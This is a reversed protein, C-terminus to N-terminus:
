KNLEIYKKLYTRIQRSIGLEILKADTLNTTEVSMTRLRTYVFLAIDRKYAETQAGKQILKFPLIQVIEGDTSPVSVTRTPKWVTGDMTIRVLSYAISESLNEHGLNTKIFSNFTQQGNFLEFAYASFIKRLLHTTSHGDYDFGKSAMKYLQNTDAYYLEKISARNHYFWDEPAEDDLETIKQYISARMREILSVLSTASIFPLIHNVIVTQDISQDQFHKLAEREQETANKWQEQFNHKQKGEKKALGTQAIKDDVALFSSVAAAEIFRCGTCLQTLLIIAEVHVEAVSLLYEAMQWIESEKIPIVQSTASELRLKTSLRRADNTAKSMVFGAQKVEEWMYPKFWTLKSFVNRFSGRTTNESDPSQNLSLVFLQLDKFLDLYNLITVENKFENRRISLTTKM